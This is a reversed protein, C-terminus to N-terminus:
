EKLLRYTDVIKSNVDLKLSQFNTTLNKLLESKDKAPVEEKKITKSKANKLSSSGSKNNIFKDLKEQKASSKSSTNSHKTMKIKIEM